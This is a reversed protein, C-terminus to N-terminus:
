LEVMTILYKYFMEIHGLMDNLSLGVQFTVHIPTEDSRPRRTASSCCFIYGVSNFEHLFYMFLNGPCDFGGTEFVVSMWCLTEDSVLLVKFLSESESVFKLRGIM